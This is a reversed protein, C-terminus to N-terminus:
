RVKRDAVLDLRGLAAAIFTPLCVVSKYNSARDRMIFPNSNARQFLVHM